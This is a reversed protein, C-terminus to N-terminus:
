RRRNIKENLGIIVHELRKHKFAMTIYAITMQTVSFILGIPLATKSFDFKYIICHLFSGFIALFISLLLISKVIAICVNQLALWRNQHRFNELNFITLIYFFRRFPYFVSLSQM